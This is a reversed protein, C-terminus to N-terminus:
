AAEEQAAGIRAQSIAARLAPTLKPCGFEDIRTAYRLGAFIFEGSGDYPTWEEWRGDQVCMAWCILAHDPAAAILRANAECEPIVALQEDDNLCPFDAGTLVTAIASGNEAMIAYDDMFDQEWPGPTFAPGSM